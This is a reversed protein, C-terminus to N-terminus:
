ASLGPFKDLLTANFHPSVTNPSLYRIRIAAVLGALRSECLSVFCVFPKKMLGGLIHVERQTRPPKTHTLFSKDYLAV